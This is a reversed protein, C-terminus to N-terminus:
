LFYSQLSTECTDFVRRSMHCLSWRVSSIGRKNSEYWSETFYIFIIIMLLLCLIFAKVKDNNLAIINICLNKEKKNIKKKVVNLWFKLFATQLFKWRSILERIKSAIYLGVLIFGITMEPWHYANKFYSIWSYM